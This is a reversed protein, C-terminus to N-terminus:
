PDVPLPFRWSVRSGTRSPPVRRLLGTQTQVDVTEDAGNIGVIVADQYAVNGFASILLVEVVQGTPWRDIVM